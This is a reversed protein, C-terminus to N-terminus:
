PCEAPALTPDPQPTTSPRGAALRLLHAVWQEVVPHRHYVGHGLSPPPPDGPRIPGWTEPDRVRVQTMPPADDCSLLRGLVDTRASAHLWRTDAAQRDIAMATAIRDVIGGFYAPFHRQYLMVLPSGCTLLRVRRPAEVGQLLAAATIVTGQSHARVVVGIPRSGDAALFGLRWRLQPIAREGYCPPAFPHIRRPFFTLVDFVAGIGRRAQPNNLGARIVAVTAAPVLAVVWGSLTVLWPFFRWNDADQIRSVWVFGVLAALIVAAAWPDAGTALRQLRLKRAVTRLRRSRDEPPELGFDDRVANKDAVPTRRLMAVGGLVLGAVLILTVAVAADEFWIPYCISGHVCSSAESHWYRSSDAEGTGFWDAVRIGVGAWLSIIMFWGLAHVIVPAMRLFSRRATKWVVVALLIGLALQAATLLTSAPIFGELRPFGLSRPVPGIGVAYAMSLGFLIWTVGWGGWRLIDGDLWGVATSAEVRPSAIAALLVLIVGCGMGVLVYAQWPWSADTLEAVSLALLVAIVAIGLQFHLRRLRKVPVAGRWFWPHELGIELDDGGAEEEEKEQPATDQEPLYEEFNRFSILGAAWVGFLIALPILAALAMIRGPYDSWFGGSLFSMWWRQSRCLGNLWGCQYAVLDLALQANMTVLTVTGLGALLRTVGRAFRRRGREMPPLMWGAVNMLAYPLLLFWLARAADGSTLGGWAFAERPFEDPDLDEDPNRQPGIQPRYFGALEDGSVRTPHFDGLLDTPPAGGVGHVILETAAVGTGLTAAQKRTADSYLDKGLM